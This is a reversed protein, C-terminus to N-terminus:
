ESASLQWVASGEGLVWKGSTKKLVIYRGKSDSADAASMLGVNLLAQTLEPNFAVRSFYVIYSYKWTKPMDRDSFLHYNSSTPIIGTISACKGNEKVFSSITNTQLEPLDRKVIAMRESPTENHSRLGNCSGIMFGNCVKEDCAFTSTSDAILPRSSGGPKPLFDLVAAYVLLEEDSVSASNAPSQGHFKAPLLLMLASTLFFFLRMVSKM